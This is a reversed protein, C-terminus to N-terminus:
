LVWFLSGMIMMFGVLPSLGLSLTSAAGLFPTINTASPTLDGISQAGNLVHSTPLLPISPAVDTVALIKLDGPSPADPHPIVGNSGPAPSAGPAAPGPTAVSPTAVGPSASDPSAAGLPGADPNALDPSGAGSSGASPTAAAPSAVSPTAAAPFNPEPIAAAASSAGSATIGPSAASPVTGGPNGPNGPNVPNGPHVPNGPAGPNVPHIPNGPAGANVPHVPTGSAGANVPHVPNDPAGPNVPHVPTVPAGPNVPHAPTVPAGPHVPTGPAGPHSPTAASDPNGYNGTFKAPNEGPAGGPGPSAAVPTTLVIPIPTEACVHCDVTTIVFGQPVYNTPHPQNLSSCSETITYTKFITGTPCIDLFVTIYTTLTTIQAITTYDFSSPKKTYSFYSTGAVTGTANATRGATSTPCDDYYETVYSTTAPFGSTALAELLPAIAAFLALAAAINSRM